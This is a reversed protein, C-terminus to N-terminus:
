FLSSRVPLELKLLTFNFHLKVEIRPKLNTMIYVFSCKPSFMCLLSDAELLKEDSLTLAM